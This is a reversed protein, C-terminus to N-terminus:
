NGSKIRTIRKAGSKIGSKNMFMYKQTGKLDHHTTNTHCVTQRNPHRVLLLVLQFVYTFFLPMHCFLNWVLPTVATLDLHPEFIGYLASGVAAQPHM